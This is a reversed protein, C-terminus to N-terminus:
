VLEGVLEMLAVGEWQLLPVVDGEWVEVGEEEGDNDRVPLPVVLWLLVAEMLLVGEEQGVRVTDWHWVVVGEMEGVPETVPVRDLEGEEQGEGVLDAETVDVVEVEGEVEEVMVAVKEWHREPVGVEVTLTHGLLEGVKEMEDVGEAQGLTDLVEVTHAEVEAVGEVVLEVEAEAERQRDEEMEEVEETVPVTEGVLLLLTVGLEQVLAELEEVPLALTVVQVLAERVAEGVEERQRVEVGEEVAEVVGLTLGM